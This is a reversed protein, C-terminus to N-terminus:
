ALSLLLISNIDAFIRKANSINTVKRTLRTKRLKMQIIDM